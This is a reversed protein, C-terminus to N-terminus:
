QYVILLQHEFRRSTYTSSMVESQCLIKVSLYGKSAYM